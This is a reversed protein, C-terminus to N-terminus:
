AGGALLNRAHARASEAKGGLMRAIELVRDEGEVRTLQSHTRDKHVVKRVVFQHDALAAVQPLHTISIIQHHAGLEAMKRGVAAAIEGGVNADIEDFVLLPINDERALASKVALMVRSMEGSSAIVRLPKPPEGPNPAFHFDTEELGRPGPQSLPTLEVSFRAQRFGLDGLHRSVEKALRPAAGRRLQSLVLGTANVGERARALELGLRELEGSRGEIKGLREAAADRHDLVRELTGGYKRKLTELVNIREELRAIERPDLELEEHYDRLGTELEELEAFATEFGTTFETVGRDIRELERLTRRLDGLKSLVSDEADHLAGLATASLEALRTSNGAMKYRQLLPEEEEVRPNLEDIEEVQFRLLELEQQGVHEAHSLGDLEQGLRRWETWATRYHELAEEAGSAADLMALQRERSNLSQHEHPGHLDVLHQGLSKLVALTAPACNIFQRNQGGASIVRRIILQGDACPELGAQALAEDIVSLNVPEFVAEVTCADEGTRILDRDAREGLVLKLAGVIISKGAGTEGTVGILGAGLPWTLADVLALNKISLTTLM